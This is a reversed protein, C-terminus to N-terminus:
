FQPSDFLCRRISATFEGVPGPHLIIACVGFCVAIASVAFVLPRRTALLKEFLLSCSQREKNLNVSATINLLPDTSSNNYDPFTLRSETNCVNNEVGKEMVPIVHQMKDEYMHALSTGAKKFNGMLIDGGKFRQSLIAETGDLTARFTNIEPDTVNAVVASSDVVVKIHTLARQLISTSENEILLNLLRRFRQMRNSTLLQTTEEVAPERILWAVDLMFDSLKSDRLDSHECSPCGSAIKAVKPQLSTNFQALLRGMESCIDKSAILVPVFNSLGSENEVEIFAPGFLDANVRPVNVKLLQHDLSCSDREIKCCSSICFDNALYKGSFSVLFRIKSQLLNSGCVYFEMPKGAEFCTPHVYCLMPTKGKLKVKMISTGGKAIRFVMNNLYVLFTGRGLLMNGPSLVLDQLQIIPEELLKKWKFHPMAIFVTLITCGPRIYGELEVPMNALWQFIQHRLRRPFEAPNWDYLKFSIRGTPCVSSLSSRNDCYPPSHTDKNNEKGNKSQIEGPAPSIRISGSHISQSGITSCLASQKGESELVAEREIIQSDIGTGDRSSDEDFDGEDAVLVQQPEKEFSNKPDVSKRRRRNNHRELKRRCSRKGEDFDLLVHFKGCQQCYRKSEGDLVVSKANACRLCVRHRKHYGKLESIDAECGPVQCLATSLGAASARSTRAKKGASGLTALEEEELQEDIEPCACPIRGALFNSCVMRPDRKRVRSLASDGGGSTTTPVDLSPLDSQQDQDSNFSINLQDDLSFELFDSWDFISSAAPDESLHAIDSSMQTNGLLAPPSEIPPPQHAQNEM